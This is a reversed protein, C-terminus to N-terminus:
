EPKLLLLLSVLRALLLLLSGFELVLRLRDFRPNSRCTASVCKSAGSLAASNTNLAAWPPWWVVGLPPPPLPLAPPPPPAPPLPLVLSSPRRTLFSCFPFILAIALLQRAEHSPDQSLSATAPM